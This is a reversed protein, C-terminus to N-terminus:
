RGSGATVYLLLQPDDPHLLLDDLGPGHTAGYWSCLVALLLAAPLLRLAAWGLVQTTDPLATTVRAAFSPDPLHEHRPARLTARTTALRTAIAACATCGVLHTAVEPSEVTAGDDILLRRIEACRV